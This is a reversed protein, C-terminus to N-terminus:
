RRLNWAAWVQAPLIAACAAYRPILRRPSTAARWAWEMAIRRVWVPARMQTGALFDVGAGISAFVTRPAAARGRAALVEQRPAGLAILCLAIDKAAVTALIQDGQTMPDFPFPPAITLAVDVGPVEARLREMAAALAADNSGVLAVRLGRAAALRVLPLTMDSGPVLSVPRRALRSLWVIPNGDAVVIDQAAYAMRFAADARLKVVHDLNITAVAAGARAALRADVEALMAAADTHTVRIVTPGFRFEM